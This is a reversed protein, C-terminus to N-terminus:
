SSKCSKIHLSQSMQNLTNEIDASYKCKYIQKGSWIAAYQKVHDNNLNKAIFWAEGVPTAENFLLIRGKYDLARIM